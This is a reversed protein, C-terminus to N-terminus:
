SFSKNRKLKSRHDKELSWFIWWISFILAVEWTDKAHKSTIFSPFPMFYRVQISAPRILLNVEPQLEFLDHSYLLNVFWLRGLSSCKAKSYM